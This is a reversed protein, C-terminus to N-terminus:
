IKNLPWFWIELSEFKEFFVGKGATKKIPILYYKSSNM